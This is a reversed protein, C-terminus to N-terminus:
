MRLLLLLQLLRNYRSVFVVWLVSFNTGRFVFKCCHFLGLPHVDGGRMRHVSCEPMRYTEWLSQHYQTRVTQLLSRSLLSRNQKRAERESAGWNRARTDQSRRESFSDTVLGQTLSQQYLFLIFYYNPIKQIVFLFILRNM